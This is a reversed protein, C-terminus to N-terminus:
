QFSEQVRRFNREIGHRRKLRLIKDMYLIIIVSNEM